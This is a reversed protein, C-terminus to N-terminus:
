FFINKLPTALDLKLRYLLEFNLVSYGFNDIM